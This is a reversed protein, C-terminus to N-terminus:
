LPFHHRCHEGTRSNSRPKRGYAQKRSDYIVGLATHARKITNAPFTIGRLAKRYEDLALPRDSWKRTKPDNFLSAVWTKAAELQDPAKSHVEQLVDNADVDTPEGWFMRPPYVDVMRKNRRDYVPVPKKSGSIRYALGRQTETLNGKIPLMFRSEGSKDNVDKAFLWTARAVAVFGMAGSVRYIVDYDSSKNLHMIAVVSIDLRGAMEQLPTLIARVSADDITKVRTGLYATIPSFVVLRCNPVGKVRKEIQEIDRDLQVMRKKTSGKPLFKMDFVRGMDAGVDEAAVMLRPGITKQKDDEAECLIVDSPPFENASGDPFNLGKTVRAVLDIAGLSKGVDPNGVMLALAGVPIHGQWLWEQLDMDIDAYSELQMGEGSESAAKKKTTIKKFADLALTKEFHKKLEDPEYQSTADALSKCHRRKRLTPNKDLPFVAGLAGEGITYRLANTQDSTGFLVVRSYKRLSDATATVPEVTLGLSRAM